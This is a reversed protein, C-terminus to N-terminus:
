RTDLDYKRAYGRRTVMKGQAVYTHSNGVVVITVMDVEAQLLESLTTLTTAQGQRYAARVIGVPTEPPRHRALIECARRFPETRRRGKPNYLGIVFGAQAALDLRRVIEDLPVLQDSLSIACFDTMLPAGLLAAAANLASVGPLVEVEISQERRAHLTEYVLGAMGYVGADGGSVLAVCKGTAALEIARGVRAVEERMGSAERPIASALDAILRLYTKYGVIVDAKEIAQRAAATMQSLAGPGIGVVFITGSAQEKL